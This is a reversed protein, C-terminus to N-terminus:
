IRGGCGFESLASKKSILGKEKGIENARLIFACGAGQELVCCNFVFANQTKM